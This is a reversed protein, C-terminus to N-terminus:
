PAIGAALLRRLLTPTSSRVFTVTLHSGQRYILIDGVAPRCTATPCIRDVMCSVVASSKNKQQCGKAYMSPLDKAASKPQPTLAPSAVLRVDAGGPTPENSAFFPGTTSAAGDACASLRLVTAVALTPIRM